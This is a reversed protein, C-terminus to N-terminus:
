GGIELIQTRYAEYPASSPRCYQKAAQSCQVQSKITHVGASLGTIILPQAGAFPNAYTTASVGGTAGMNFNQASGASDIVIRSGCAATSASEGLQMGVNLLIVIISSSSTVTFNQNARTDTWTSASLVGATVVDSTENNNLLVSVLSDGRFRGSAALALLTSAVPTTNAHIGDVTDANSAPNLNFQYDCYITDGTLPATAMTFIGSGPTTETYDTGRKQSLGNIYVELSSGIYARATTFATTSGNVTGTPTENTILSNTGVNNIAGSVIYDCLLVDGTAPAYAMTFGTSTQTFDDGSPKLRQGNLYVDLSGTTMGSASATTFATNSGNVTGGPTENKIISANNMDEQFIANSIRWGVAISQASYIGQARVVTLTDTSRATVLLKESTSVTPITSNQHAIVYFPVSPFRAGEGSNLVITTGSTAPSPATLVTGTAGDKVNAM